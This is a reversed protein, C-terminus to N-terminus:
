RAEPAAPTEPAEAKPPDPWFLSSGDPCAVVPVNSLVKGHLKLDAIRAHALAGQLCEHLAEDGVGRVIEAREIGGGDPLKFKLLVAGSLAPDRKRAERMCIEIASGAGKSVAWRVAEFPFAFTPDSPRIVPPQSGRAGSPAKAQACAPLWRANASELEAAEGDTAAGGDLTGADSASPVLAASSAPNSAEASPSSALGGAGAASTTSGGLPADPRSTAVSPASCSGTACGLGLVLGLALGIWARGHMGRV